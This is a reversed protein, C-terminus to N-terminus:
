ISGSSRTIKRVRTNEAKKEPISIAKIEELRSFTSSSRELPVNFPLIKPVKKLSSDCKIAINSKPLLIANTM